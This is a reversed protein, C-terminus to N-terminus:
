PTVPTPISVSDDDSKDTDTEIADRLAANSQDAAASTDVEKANTADRGIREAQDAAATAVQTAAADKVVLIRGEGEATYVAGGPMICGTLATTTLIALLITKM